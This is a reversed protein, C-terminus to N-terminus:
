AAQQEDTTFWAAVESIDKGFLTALLFVTANSPKREGSEMRSVHALSIGLADALHAQSWGRRERMIRLRSDVKM